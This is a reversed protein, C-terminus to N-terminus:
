FSVETDRYKVLQVQKSYFSKVIWGKDTWAKVVEADDGINIQIVSEISPEVIDEEEDPESLHFLFANNTTYCRKIEYGENISDKLKTLELGIGHPTLETVDILYFQNDVM